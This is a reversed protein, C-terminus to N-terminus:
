NMMLLTNWRRCLVKTNRMTVEYCYERMDGLGFKTIVSPRYQQLVIAHDTTRYINIKEWILSDLKNCTKYEQSFSITSLLLFLITIIKKM